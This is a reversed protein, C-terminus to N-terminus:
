EGNYYPMFPFVSPVSLLEIREPIWPPNLTEKHM